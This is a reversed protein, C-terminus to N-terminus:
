TSPSGDARTAGCRRALRPPTSIASIRSCGPTRPPIPARRGDSPPSTSPSSRTLPKPEKSGTTIGPSPSRGTSPTPSPATCSRISSPPNARDRYGTVCVFCGLPIEVDINKLNNERAGVIKLNKGNGARRIAPVPISRRGALFDGTISNQNAAVEAPTGCAVVEGGHIGAKPGIDVIYDASLMTEEDHEVVIVSNGLDRLSKLTAILKSNDRQHLGISPEDLIYLVGALSSGIQTALRIRQAEGGSLTASKRALSLYDLGVSKLFGLRSRLEKLIERAIQMESPTFTLSKAFDLSDTVSMSCFEHINKGGVTVALAEHNLKAGHCEPM